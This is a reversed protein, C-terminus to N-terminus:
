SFASQISISLQPRIHISPYSVGADYARSLTRLYTCGLRRKKEERTSVSARGCVPARMGFLLVDVADSRRVSERGRGNLETCGAKEDVMCEVGSWRGGLADSGDMEM